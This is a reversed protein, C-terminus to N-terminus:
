RGVIALPRRMGAISVGAAALALAPALARLDCCLGPYRNDRWVGGLEAAQEFIRFNSIGARQLQIGAGLGTFGAGVIAVELFDDNRM